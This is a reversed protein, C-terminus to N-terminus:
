ISVHMERCTSYWGNGDHQASHDDFAQAPEPATEDFVGTDLCQLYRVGGSSFSVM